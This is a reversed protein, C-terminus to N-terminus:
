LKRPAVVQVGVVVCGAQVVGVVRRDSRRWLPRSRRRSPTPSYGLLAIIRALARVVVCQRWQDPSHQVMAVSSDSGNTKTEYM